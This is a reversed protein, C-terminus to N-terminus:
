EGDAIKAETRARLKAAHKDAYALIARFFCGDVDKESLDALTITTPETVAHITSWSDDLDDHEEITVTGAARDIRLYEAAGVLADYGDLSEMNWRRKAVVDQIQVDDYTKLTPVILVNEDVKGDEIGFHMQRKNFYYNQRATSQVWHFTKESVEPADASAPAAFFLSCAIMGAAVTGLLRMTKFNM